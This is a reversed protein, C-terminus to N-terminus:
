VCMLCVLRAPSSEILVAIQKACEEKRTFDVCQQLENVWRVQTYQHMHTYM